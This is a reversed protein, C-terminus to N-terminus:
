FPEDEPFRGANEYAPCKEKLAACQPTLHDKEIGSLADVGSSCDLDRSQEALWV